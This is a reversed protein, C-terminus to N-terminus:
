RSGILIIRINKSKITKKTEVQDALVREPYHGMRERFHEVAELM